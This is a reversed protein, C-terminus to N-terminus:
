ELTFLFENKGDGSLTFGEYDFYKLDSPATMRNKIIMRTMAGRCMKTYIVVTKLKGDKAVKFEPTIVTLERQVRKWDFMNKFENSALNVLVGDDAKVREILRDTLIPKWTDFMNMGNDPLVVDGELRYCNILDLPRLLGYLFSGILLHDNAYTLDADTMTEPAIKKFVMGDYSFIAPRRTSTDFFSRYRLKNEAAIAKNCRLMMGIEDVDYRSMQLAHRNAVTQFIPETAYPVPKSPENTMIKACAILIQM